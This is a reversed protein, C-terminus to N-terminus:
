ADVLFRAKVDEPVAQSKLAGPKEPDYITWVRTEQGEVALDAGRFLRHTVSFSSRRWEAITSEVTVDDGFSSPILFRVKLDVMPFGAMEYTKLMVPKPLGAAEFLHVTCIDFYEIYRPFYVIGAPDCDGWEIRINRRNVLM